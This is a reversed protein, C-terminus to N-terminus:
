SSITTSISSKRHIELGNPWYILRWQTITMQFAIGAIASRAEGVLKSRLYNFKEVKSIKKNEHVACQFSDWFEIWKTKDGSFSIIDNRPLRVSSVHETEKKVSMEQQKM